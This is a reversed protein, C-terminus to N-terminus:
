ISGHTVNTLVQVVSNEKVEVTIELSKKFLLPTQYGIIMTDVGSRGSLVSVGFNNHSDQGWNSLAAYSVSVVVNGDVKMSVFTLGTVGGQKVIRAAVFTGPGELKLVKTKSGKNVRAFKGQTTKPTCIVDACIVKEFKRVPVKKM